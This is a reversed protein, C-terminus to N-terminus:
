FRASLELAAGGPAPRLAVAAAPPAARPRAVLVIVAAGIAALGLGLSVNAAILKARAADVSSPACDPACTERLHDVDRKASWALGAFAGGLGLGVAGLVIPAVPIGSPPAAAPAERPDRFRVAVVRRREGERLVIELAVPPSGAREFRLAHQGPDVPIAQAGLRDLFPRGDLLVRVDVLDHGDPGQASVVVSPIRAEVDALWGACDARVLPHCASRSCALFSARAALLKGQDRQVQGRESADICAGKEDARAGPPSALLLLCFALSSFPLPARVM